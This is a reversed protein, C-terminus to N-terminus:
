PKPWRQTWGQENPALKIAADLKRRRLGAYARRRRLERRSIRRRPKSAAEARLYQLERHEILAEHTM